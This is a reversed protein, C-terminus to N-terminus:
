SEIYTTANSESLAVDVDEEFSTILKENKEISKRVDIPDLITAQNRELFPKSVAEFEESKVKTSDKSFTSELLKDLRVQNQINFNDVQTSTKAFTQKLMTLLNREFAISSKREIAQAVSMEIGAITVMTLANSKVLNSKIKNRESILDNIQQYDDKVDKSFEESTKKSINLKKDIVIDLPRFDMILENIRKDLIKLKVLARTVTIKEAM